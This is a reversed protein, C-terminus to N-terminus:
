PVAHEVSNGVVKVGAAASRGAAAIYQQEAEALARAEKNCNCTAGAAEQALCGYYADQAKQLNATANQAADLSQQWEYFYYAAVGIGIIVPIEAVSFRGKSDSRALPNADAYLYTNLGGALGIPDSEIYRGITPDYDRFYNYNHGTESDFYQGPFRLNYTFTGLGSPNQNPTDNGFPDSPWEWVVKQNADTIARPTDTQDAQVYYLGNPTIIGIPRNGLWITEEILAGGQAYEGLLHGAQDYVFLTRIGGVDKSVREGFPDYQYTYTGSSGTVSALRNADDYTYKTRTWPGGNVCDENAARTYYVRVTTQALATMLQSVVRLTSLHWTSLQKICQSQEALM